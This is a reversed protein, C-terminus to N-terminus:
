LGEFWERVPAPLADFGGVAVYVGAVLFVVFLVSVFISLGRDGSVESPPALAFRASAGVGSGADGSREGDLEPEAEPPRTSAALADLSDDAAFAEAHAGGERLEPVPDHPPVEVDSFPDDGPGGGDGAPPLPPPTSSATRTPPPLSSGASHAPPPASIPPPLSSRSMELEPAPISPKESVAPAARSVGADAADPLISPSASVTSAPAAAGGPGSDFRSPAGDRVEVARRLLEAGHRISEIAIAMGAPGGADREPRVWAVRGRGGIASRGDALLYDFRLSTGQELPKRTKIFVGAEGIDRRFHQVLEEVDAAKSKVKLGPSRPPASPSQAM